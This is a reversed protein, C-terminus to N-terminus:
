ADAPSHDQKKAEPRFHLVIEERPEVLFGEPDHTTDWFALEGKESKFNPLQKM